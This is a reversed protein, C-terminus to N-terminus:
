SSWPVPRPRRRMTATPLLVEVMVTAPPAVDEMEEEDGDEQRGGRRGLQRLRPQRLERGALFEASCPEGMADWTPFARWFDERLYARDYRPAKALIQIRHRMEEYLTPGHM